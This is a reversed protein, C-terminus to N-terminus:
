TREALLTDLTGTAVSHYNPRAEAYIARARQQGDPTALLARYLPVLFKRRGVHRLFNELAPTAAAYGARLTHPFWATLIEANGSTTFHFADDLSKLQEASLSPPLGHLFHVWEHSSWEATETALSAPATGAALRALAQDVAEFRHSTVAPANAPLGPGDVWDSLQLRAELGPEKDLLETRLYALFTATDMAQFSFRAFYEKIFADLRPRGILGELTLLLSCGKEYAIETLGEDPDRGALNLRLHTDSSTAGIEEITHHLADRGLVQLMDAYERGYLHEMIRREFYVTFGENLWFDNWTGNTVLNGSWSHALEHAVLSTLSRDGALITPTVFTLRPNEMGGFPFSPPLVLLDYREWRYPGYLQEAAAVMHELDAFEHTALPLTAPEAYIGTRGSLPAFELDGVALAMLYAPIPQDMRFQYEGSASRQQPNEASMLALLHAPVRVRAEYTFRIGPSDQCPLWTRALIAQSQTFLFPQTGSTQAPDLWQLAAAAPATRYHIRVSTTDNTLTVRLPQGLVPDAAGLTFESPAAIGSGDLREVSEITLERTDFVVQSAEGANALHWTASGALTRSDFDVALELLLHQVRVPSSGAYSHPDTPLAVPSTNPSASTTPSVMLSPIM